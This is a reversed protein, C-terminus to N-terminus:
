RRRRRFLCLTGLATTILLMSSPEPIITINDIYAGGSSANNNTNARFGLSTLDGSMSNRFDFESDSGGTLTLATPTVFSGGLISGSWTDTTNNVDMSITYWTHTNISQSIDEFAGDFIQIKSDVLRITPGFHDSQTDVLSSFDGADTDTLYLSLDAATSSTLRFDFSFTASGSIDSGLAVGTNFNPSRGSTDLVTNSANAPDTTTNWGNGDEWGSLPSGGEFDAIVAAQSIGMIGMLPLLTFIFTRTINMDM